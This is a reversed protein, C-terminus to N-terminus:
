YILPSSALMLTMCLIADSSVNVYVDSEDFRLFFLLFFLGDVYNLLSLRTSNIHFM